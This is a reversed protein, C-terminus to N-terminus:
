GTVTITGEMGVTEHYECFMRYEGPAVEVTETLTEGAQVDIDFDTGEITVNHLAAGDNVMELEGGAAITVAVPAFVNDTMTLTVAGAPPSATEEPTTTETAPPTTTPEDGGCAVGVLTLAALLAAIRAFRMMDM